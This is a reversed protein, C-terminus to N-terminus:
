FKKWMTNNHEYNLKIYSESM